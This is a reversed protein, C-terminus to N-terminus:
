QSTAAPEVEVAPKSGAHADWIATPLSPRACTFTPAVPTCTTASCTSASAPRAHLSAGSPRNSNCFASGFSCLPKTVYQSPRPPLLTTPLSQLGERGGILAHQTCGPAGTVRHDRSRRQFVSRFWPSPVTVQQTRVKNIRAETYHILTYTAETIREIIFNSERQLTCYIYRRSEVLERLM